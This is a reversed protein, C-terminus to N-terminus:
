HEAGGLVSERRLRAREVTGVELRHVAVSQAEESEDVRQQVERANFRPPRFGGELRGVKGREGCVEGSSEARGDLTRAKAELDVALV